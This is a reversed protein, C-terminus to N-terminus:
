AGGRYARALKARVQMRMSDLETVDLCIPGAVLMATQKRMHMAVKPVLMILCM